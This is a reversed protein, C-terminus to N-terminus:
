SHFMGRPGHTLYYEPNREFEDLCHKSCFYYVKGKYITKYKAKGPDVAMGCVPDIQTSM